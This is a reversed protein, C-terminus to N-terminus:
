FYKKYKTKNENNFIIWIIWFGNIIELLLLLITFIILIIILSSIGTSFNCIAGKIEKKKKKKKSVLCKFTFFTM